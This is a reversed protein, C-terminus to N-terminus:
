DMVILIKSMMCLIKSTNVFGALTEYSKLLHISIYMDLPPIFPLPNPTLEYIDIVYKAIWYIPQLPQMQISSTFILDILIHSVM